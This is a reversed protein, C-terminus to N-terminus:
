PARVKERRLKGDIRHIDVLLRLIHQLKSFFTQLRSLPMGDPFLVFDQEM